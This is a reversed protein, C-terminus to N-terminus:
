FDIDEVEESELQIQSNLERVGACFDRGRRCGTDFYKECGYFPRGTDNRHRHRLKSGCTSCELEETCPNLNEPHYLLAMPVVKKVGGEHLLETIELLTAGSTTVDDVAVVTKGKVNGKLEFAGRVNERREEPSGMEKQPKYDRTCRM